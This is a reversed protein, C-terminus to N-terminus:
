GFLLRKPNENFIKKLRNKPVAFKMLVEILLRIGDIPHPAGWQSLDSGYVLRDLPVKKIMELTEENLEHSFITQNQICMYVGLEAMEKMQRVTMKNIIGQPHDASIRKVGLKKAQKVIIFREETTQHALGLIMNQEAIIKLVEKLEPLVKKRDDLVPIGGKKGQVRFHHSAHVSPLWVYRGSFKSCAEVAHPNLGGVCYNLVIGGLIQTPAKDIRQAYANVAEQVLPTRGASPTSHCKFVLARLGAATAQQGIEIESYQRAVYADPWAHIHIDISVTILADVAERNIKFHKGSLLRQFRVRAKELYEPELSKEYM